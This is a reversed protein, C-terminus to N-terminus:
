REMAVAKTFFHNDEVARDAASRWISCVGQCRWSKDVGGTAVGIMSMLGPDKLRGPISVPCLSWRSIVALGGLCPKLSCRADQGLYPHSTHQTGTGLFSSTQARVLLIAGRKRSRGCGTPAPVSKEWKAPGIASRVHCLLPRPGEQCMFRLSPSWDLSLAVAMIGHPGCVCEASRFSDGRSPASPKRFAPFVISGPRSMGAKGIGKCLLVSTHTPTCAGAREKDSGPALLWATTAKAASKRMNQYCVPAVDHKVLHLLKGVATRRDDSALKQQAELEMLSRRPQVRGIMLTGPVNSFIPTSCPDPHRSLLFLLFQALGVIVALPIMM